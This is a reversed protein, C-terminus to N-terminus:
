VLGVVWISREPQCLNERKAASHGCEACVYAPRKSLAKLKKSDWEPTFECIKSASDKSQNNKPM